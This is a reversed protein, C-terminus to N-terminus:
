EDNEDDADRDAAEEGRSWVDNTGEGHPPTHSVDRMRAAPEEDGAGDTVARRGDNPGRRYTEALADDADSHTHDM